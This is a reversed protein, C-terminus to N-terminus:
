GNYKNIANQIKEKARKRIQRITDTKVGLQDSLDQNVESTLYKKLRKHELDALIVIREKKNLSKMIKEAFLRVDILEEVSKPISFQGLPNFPVETREVELKVKKHYDLFLRSSIICLWARVAKTPSLKNNLKEKNFSKTKQVREFTDHAIGQGVHEDLKRKKCILECEEKLFHYHRNVFTEFINKDGTQFYEELLRVDDIQEIAPKM